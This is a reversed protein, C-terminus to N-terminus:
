PKIYTPFDSIYDHPQDPPRYTDLILRDPIVTRIEHCVIAELERSRVSHQRRYAADSFLDRTITSRRELELEGAKRMATITTGSRDAGTYDIVRQLLEHFTFSVRPDAALDVLLRGRAELPKLKRTQTIEADPAYVGHLELFATRHGRILDAPHFWLLREVGNIVEVNSGNGFYEVLKDEKMRAEFRLVSGYTELETDSLKNAANMEVAKRYISFVLNSRKGGAHISDLWHRSLTRINRHRLNRFGAILSGDPDVCQSLV